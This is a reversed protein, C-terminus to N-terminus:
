VVDGATDTAGDIATETSGCCDCCDMEVPEGSGAALSEKESVAVLEPIVM